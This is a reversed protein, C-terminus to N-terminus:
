SPNFRSYIDILVYLQYFIGKVPGRLKTIDLHHAVDVGAVPRRGAARTQGQGPPDGAAATGPEARSSPRDSVDHVDLM